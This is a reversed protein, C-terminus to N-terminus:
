LVYSCVFFPAYNTKVSREEVTGYMQSTKMLLASTYFSCVCFIITSVKESVVQETDTAYIRLVCVCLCLHTPTQARAADARAM